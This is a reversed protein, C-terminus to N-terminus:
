EDPLLIPGTQGEPRISTITFRPTQALMFKQQSKDPNINVGMVRLRANKTNVRPVDWINPADLKLRPIAVSWSRTDDPSFQLETYTYDKVTSPLWLLKRDEGGRITQGSTPWGPREGMPSGQTQQLLADGTVPKVDPVMGKGPAVPIHLIDTLGVGNNGAKDRATLRFRIGGDAAAQPPLEVTMSGAWTPKVPLTLVPANNPFQAYCIALSTSNPDLNADRIEWRLTVNQGVAFKRPITNQEDTFAPPVTSILIRPPERDLVYIRHPMGPPVSSTGQDPGVFRIWHQGEIEGKFLFHSQEVGFFGAKEWTRGRTISYWVGVRPVGIPQYGNPHEIFFFESRTYYVPIGNLAEVVPLDETPRYYLPADYAWPPFDVEPQWKPNEDTMMCGGLLLTLMALAMLGHVRM